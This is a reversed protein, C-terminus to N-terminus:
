LVKGLQSCQPPVQSALVLKDVHHLLCVQWELLGGVKLAVKAHRWCLRTDVMDSHSAVVTFLAAVAPQLNGHYHWICLEDCHHCSTGGSPTEKDQLIQRTHKCAQTHTHTHRCPPWVTSSGGVVFVTQGVDPQTHASMHMYTRLGQQVVQAGGPPSVPCSGSHTSQCAPQLADDAARAWLWGWWWYIWRWWRGGEGRSGGWGWAPCPLPSNNSTNTTTTPPTPDILIPLFPLSAFLTPPLPPPPPPFFPPIHLPRPFSLALPPLHSPLVPFPPM